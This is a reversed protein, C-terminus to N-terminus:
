NLKYMLFVIHSHSNDELHKGSSTTLKFNSFLAVPGLNVLRIDDGNACRSKNSRIVVEFNLELYSNLLSILCDERPINIINSM